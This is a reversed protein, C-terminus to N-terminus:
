KPNQGQKKYIQMGDMQDSTLTVGKEKSKAPLLERTKLVFRKQGQLAM